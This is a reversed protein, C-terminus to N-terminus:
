PKIRKKEGFEKQKRFALVKEGELTPSYIKKRTEENIFLAKRLAEKRLFEEARKLAEETKKSDQKKSEQKKLDQKKLDQKNSDQKNSDQKNSDQKKSDQASEPPAKPTTM